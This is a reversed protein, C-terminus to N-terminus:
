HILLYNNGFMAFQIGVKTRYLWIILIVDTKLVIKLYIKINLLNKPKILMEYVKSCVPNNFLLKM